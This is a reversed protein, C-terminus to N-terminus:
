LKGGKARWVRLGRIGDEIVVKIIVAYGLRKMKKELHEQATKTHLCPVFFSTGVRFKKWDLDYNVGDILM